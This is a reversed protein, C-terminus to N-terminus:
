ADPGHRESRYIRQLSDRTASWLDTENLEHTLALKTVEDDGKALMWYRSFEVASSFAPADDCPGDSYAADCAGVIQSSIKAVPGSQGIDTMLVADMAGEQVAVGLVGAAEKISFVAGRRQLPVERAPRWGNPSAPCMSGELWRDILSDTITITHPTAAKTDSTKESAESLAVRANDWLEDIDLAEPVQEAKPVSEWASIIAALASRLKEVTEPTVTKTRRPQAELGLFYAM